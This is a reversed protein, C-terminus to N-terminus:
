DLLAPNIFYTGTQEAEALMHGALASRADHGTFAGALGLTEVDLAYITFHYNHVREDHVILSFSKTGEPAGSWRVHPNKNPGFSVHGIDAPVGFANEAPIRGGENFGSVEIKM